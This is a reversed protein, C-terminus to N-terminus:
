THGGAALYGELQAAALNDDGSSLGLVFVRRDFGEQPQQLRVDAVATVDPRQRLIEGLGHEGVGAM